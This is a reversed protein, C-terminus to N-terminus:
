YENDAEEILLEDMGITRTSDIKTDFMFTGAHSVPIVVLARAYTTWTGWTNSYTDWSRTRASTRETNFTVSNGAEWPTEAPYMENIQYIHEEDWGSTIVGGANKNIRRYFYTLIEEGGVWQRYTTITSGDDYEVTYDYQWTEDAGGQLVYADGHNQTSFYATYSLTYTQTEWMESSGNYVSTYTKVLMFTEPDWTYTARYGSTLIYSSSSSSYSHTLSEYQGASSYSITTSGQDYVIDTEFHGDANVALLTGMVIAAIHTGMIISWLTCSSLLIIICIVIVTMLKRKM